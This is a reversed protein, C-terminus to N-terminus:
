TRHRPLNGRKDAPKGHKFTQTDHKLIRETDATDFAERSSTLLVCNPVHGKWWGPADDGMMRLVQVVVLSDLQSLGSGATELM